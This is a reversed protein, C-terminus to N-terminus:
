IDNLGKGILINPIAKEIRSERTKTQKPASFYLLFQKKRGPTLADFAMKLEQSEELKVKFEEVMEFEEAKKFNVKLGSKEVEMAEYIYEKLINEIPLVEDINTFRIQRASQVNKSQQVLIGKPDKLLVGKFFLIACYDKFVHLLVINNEQFTYCPTGWKLEEKLNCDLIISRLKGLEQGWKETKIFYFDVKPNM